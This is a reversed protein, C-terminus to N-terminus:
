DVRSKLCGGFSVEEHDLREKQIEPEHKRSSFRAEPRPIEYHQRVRTRVDAGQPRRRLAEHQPNGGQDPRAQALSIRQPRVRM